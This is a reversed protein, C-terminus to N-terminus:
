NVTFPPANAARRGRQAYGTMELYGVGGVPMGAETGAYRVAGEWYSGTTSSVLEQNDVPTTLHLSIQKSPLDIKWEVPYDGQTVSSHWTKLPELSFQRSSLFESKGSATVFTASSYPSLNGNKLRLRYIMVEENTNLQICMWDWGAIQDDDQDRVSSFFERDMWAQGAVQFNRGDLSVNGSAELRTLSYYHSAEGPKPGKQSVGNKGHIVLPKQSTLTLRLHANGTVAEVQQRVPEYSLWRVSWNGNWIKGQRADAGALGPGSRNVREQEYFHGHNIDTLAFHAVYIQKPFWVPNRNAENEVLHPHFRFFTLEFGFQQGDRCNLNGTYYWWETQYSPHSFHDEPFRYRYGPLALEDGLGVNIALATIAIARVAITSLLVTRRLIHIGENKLCAINLMLLKRGIIHAAANSM